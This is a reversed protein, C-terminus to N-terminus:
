GATLRALLDPLAREAGARVEEETQWGVRHPIVVIPLEPMGAQAAQARAAAEFVETVFLVTPVGRRELAISDLV